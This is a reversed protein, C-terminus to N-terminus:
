HADLALERRDGFIGQPRFIVLLMLGLGVLMLRVVGTQTQDFVWHPIYGAASAQFLVNDAVSLVVWFIMAGIVPGLIRAAGGLILAAYAFFTFDRSYLEPQV